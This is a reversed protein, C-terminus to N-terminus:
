SEYSNLSKNALTVKYWAQIFNIIDKQNKISQSFFKIKSVSEVFQKLMVCPVYYTEHKKIENTLHRLFM